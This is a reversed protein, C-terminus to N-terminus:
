RRLDLLNTIIINVGDPRSPIMKAGPYLHVTTVTKKLSNADLVLTAGDWVRIVTADGSIAAHNYILIGGLLDVTIIKALEQTHEGAIQRLTTIVSSCKVVAGKNYLSTLPNAIGSDVILSAESMVEILPTTVTDFAINGKLLINGRMAVVRDVFGPDAANSGIEVKVASDAADVQIEDTRFNSGGNKDSEYFFGGRGQYVVKSCAVKLPAGSTGFSGVYRRPVLISNLDITGQDGTTIDRPADSVRVDDATVPEAVPSWDGSTDWVTGLLYKDAM